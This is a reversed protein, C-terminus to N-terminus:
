VGLRVGREHLAALTAVTSPPADLLAQRRTLDWDAEIRALDTSTVVAGPDAAVARM